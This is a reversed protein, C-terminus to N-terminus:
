DGAGARTPVPPRVQIQGPAGCVTCRVALPLRRHGQGTEVLGALGVEAWRKCAACYAWVAHGHAQLGAITGLDIM